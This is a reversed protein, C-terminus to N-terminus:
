GREDLLREMYDIEKHQSTVVAEAFPVVVPNESRELLAEAMEIAGRHHAIMLTLFLRDAEPGDAQELQAVQERTAMGPMPAGPEHASATPDTGHDHAGGGDLTPRTMWTMSPEPSAQPLGWAALWGFLQGSQNSQTAAVDYALQRIVPDDSRDRVLMALEVGQDHHVQMDRAFGAEASTTTPAPEVGVSLRGVAFAIAGVLLAAVFAVVLTRVRGSM